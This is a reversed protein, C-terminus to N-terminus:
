GWLGFAMHGILWVGFVVIGTHLTISVWLPFPKLPRGLDDYGGRIRLFRRWSETFTDGKKSNFVAPLEVALFAVIWLAWYIPQWSM